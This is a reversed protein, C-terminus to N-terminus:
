RVKAPPSAAAKAMEGLLHIASDALVEYGDQSLHNWDRPGHIIKERAAKRFDERPDYFSVGIRESAQRILSCILDSNEAVRKAPHTPSRGEYVRISVTDSTLDYCTLPSPAYLVGIRAKPFYARLYALAREFFYVAQKIEEPTLELAPSQLEDPVGVIRGAVRAKTHTFVPPTLKMQAEQGRVKEIVSKVLRQLTDFFLFRYHMPFHREMKQFRSRGGIAVEALFRDFVADDFLAAAGYKPVFRERLDELNNNLDNGEYFYVLVDDPPGVAFRKLGKLYRFRLVPEEVLGRVSGGGPQGFSVVDRGTKQHIVHSSQYPPNGLGATQLQRLLWDGNGNAYSDGLLVVYDKPVLRGKSSQAMFRLYRHLHQQLRLPFHQLLVPFVFLEVLAYFVALVGFMLALRKLALKM